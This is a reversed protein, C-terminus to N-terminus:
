RVLIPIHGRGLRQVILDAVDKPSRDSVDIFGDISFMGAPLIGKDGKLFMIDKARGTKLLDRIGRWELGCWEKSNYDSTLWAVVLDSEDHYVSQLRTDLNPAALEAEFWRDYFVRGVGLETRLHLAVAEVHQRIEGPFSFAVRFRRQALAPNQTTSSSVGPAFTTGVGGAALEVADLVLVTLYTSDPSLHEVWFGGRDQKEWLWRAGSKVQVEWGRPRALSLAHIALATAEISGERDSSWTPWSGNGAQNRQIVEIARQTIPEYKAAPRLRLTSFILSSAYEFNMVRIPSRARRAKFDAWPDDDDRQLETVELMRLLTQGMLQIAYNSRCMNFLYATAWHPEAGGTLVSQTLTKKLRRWWPDFGGIRAWEVTRLMTADISFIQVDHGGWFNHLLFPSVQEVGRADHEPIKNVYTVKSNDLSHSPIGRIASAISAEEAEKWASIVEDIQSGCQFGRSLLYVLAEQDGYGELDSAYYHLWATARNNPSYNAISQIFKEYRVRRDRYTSELAALLTAPTTGKKRQGEKGTRRRRDAKLTARKRRM